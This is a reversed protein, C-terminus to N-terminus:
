EDLSQEMAKGAQLSSFVLGDDLIDMVEQGFQRPVEGGLLEIVEEVAELNANNADGLARSKTM